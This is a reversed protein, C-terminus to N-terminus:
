KEPPILLPTGSPKDGNPLPKLDRGSNNTIVQKVGGAAEEGVASATDSWYIDLTHAPVDNIQSVKGIEQGKNNLVLWEIDVNQVPHGTTGAPGDTVKVVCSVTFDADKPTEQIQNSRDNFSIVFQRAISINGDGPAGTIGKFYVKAPRRKLSKPDNEMQRALIGTLVEAVAPAAQDAAANLTAQDGESWAKAAISTGERTAQKTGDYSYVTYTPIVTDGQLKAQVVLEWDGKKFPKVVAPVSQAILSKALIDAFSKAAKDNLLAETPVPVILRAPPPRTLKGAARPDNKQFPRSVSLCGVLPLLGMLFVSCRTLTVISRKM